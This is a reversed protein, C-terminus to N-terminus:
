ITTLNLFLRTQTKQSDREAGMLDYTTGDIIVRWGNGVGDIVQQYYGNLAVHRYSEAAIQPLQRNETAEINDVAKPADMCPINVLQDVYTLNPQGSTSVVGSPAQITALSRFLGTAVALPMVDAISYALPTQNM